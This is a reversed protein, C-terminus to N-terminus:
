RFRGRQFGHVGPSTATMPLPNRFDGAVFQSRRLGKKRLMISAGSSLNLSSMSSTQMAATQASISALSLATVSHLPM